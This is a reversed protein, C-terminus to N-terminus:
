RHDLVIRMLDAVNKASLKLMINARHFEVTRPSIGLTQGAVRSTAGQIILSLVANERPTLDDTPTPITMTLRGQADSATRKQNACFGGGGRKPAATVSLM